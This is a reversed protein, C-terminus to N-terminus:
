RVFRYLQNALNTAIDSDRERCGSVVAPRDDLTESDLDDDDM